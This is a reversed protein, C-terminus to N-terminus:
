RSYPSGGSSGYPQGGYPSQQGGYPGSPFPARAGSRGADSAESRRIGLVALVLGIAMAAFAPGAVMYGTVADGAETIEDVGNVLLCGWVAAAAGLVVVVVGAIGLANRGRKASLIAVLIMVFAVGILVGAAWLGIANIMDSSDADDKSVSGPDDDLDAYIGRRLTLAYGAYALGVVAAVLAVVTTPM